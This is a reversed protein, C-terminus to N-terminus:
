APHKDRRPQAEKRPSPSRWVPVIDAPNLTQSGPQVPMSVPVLKASASKTHSHFVWNFRSVCSLSQHFSARWCNAGMKRIPKGAAAEEASPGGYTDLCINHGMISALIPAEQTTGFEPHREVSYESPEVAPWPPTWLPNLGAANGTKRMMSAIHGGEVLVTIVLDANDIEIAQRGRYSISRM